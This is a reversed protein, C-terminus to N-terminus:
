GEAQPLGIEKWTAGGDSTIALCAAGASRAPCTTTWGNLADRFAFPVVPDHTAPPVRVALDQKWHKGGDGTRLFQGFRTLGIWHQSDIFRVPQGNLEPTLNAAFVWHDGSDSTFVFDIPLGDDGTVAVELTGSSVDSYRFPVFMYNTTDITRSPPSPLVRRTWDRGGNHTVFLYIPAYFSSENRDYEAYPLFFGTNADVFALQGSIATDTYILGNIQGVLQWTAGADNTHFFQENMYGTASAISWHIWGFRPSVFYVNDRRLQSSLTVSTPIAVRNWILGSDNTHFIKGGGACKHAGLSDVEDQFAAVLAETGDSNFTIQSPGPCEWTLQKTWHAGGDDTRYLAWPGYGDTGTSLAISAWGVQSTVFVACVRDDVGCSTENRSQGPHPKSPAPIPSHLARAGLILSAVIALALFMAVLAIPFRLLSPRDSIRPSAAGVARSIPRYGFDPSPADYGIADRVRRRVVEEDIM